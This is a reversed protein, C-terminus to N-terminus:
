QQTLLGGFVVGAPNQAYNANDVGAFSDPGNYARVEIRNAGTMLFSSIDFETLTMQAAVAAVNNTNSGVTGVFMDNVYVEAYDDVAVYITGTEPTGNLQFERRFLFM